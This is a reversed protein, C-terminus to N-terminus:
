REGVVTKYVEEITTYGAVCKAVGDTFIGIM